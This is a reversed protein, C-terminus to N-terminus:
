FRKIPMKKWVLQYYSAQMLPMASYAVPYSIAVGLLGWYKDLVWAVPIQVVFVSLLTIVTPVLVTGSARMLGSLVTSMGFVVLSWLMLNLIAQAIDVVVSDTIFLSIVARSFVYGLL